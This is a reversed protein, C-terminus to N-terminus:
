TRPRPLLEHQWFPAIYVLALGPVVSSPPRGSTVIQAGPWGICVWCDLDLQLLAADFDRPTLWSVTSILQVPTTSENLFKM